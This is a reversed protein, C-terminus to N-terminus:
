KKALFVDIQGLYLGEPAVESNDARIEVHHSGNSLASIDVNLDELVVYSTSTTTLDNGYQVNDIFLSARATNTGSTSRLKVQWSLTKWNAENTGNKIFNFDAIAIYADDLHPIEVESGLFQEMVIERTAKDPTIADNQIKTTSIANTQIKAESVANSQLKAESIANAQIKAETVANSQLKAESVSGDALKAATISGDPISNGRLNIPM